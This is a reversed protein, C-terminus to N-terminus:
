SKVYHSWAGVVIISLAGAIDTQAEPPIIPGLVPYKAILWVFGAAVAARTWGGVKSNTVFMKLIDM